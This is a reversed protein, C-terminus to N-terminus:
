KARRRVTRESAVAAGTRVDPLRRPRGRVPTAEAYLLASDLIADDLGPYAALIRARPIGAAVSAVLDYVPIRTGRIVPTGSLIAPDEVVMDQAAALRTSRDDADAVFDTLDVTLFGDKVTWDATRWGTFPRGAMPDALRESFRHILRLREDATLAGATRFYFGVLPCAALRIRRGETTSYFGEPLIKEDIVRNVERVTVSAVVAAETPTLLDVNM